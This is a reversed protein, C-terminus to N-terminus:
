AGKGPDVQVYTNHVYANHPDMLARRNGRHRALSTSNRLQAHEHYEWGYSMYEILM